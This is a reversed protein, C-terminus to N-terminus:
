IREPWKTHGWKLRVLREIANDIFQTPALNEDLEVGTGIDPIRPYTIVEGIRKLTLKREFASQYESELASWISRANELCVMSYRYIEDVNGGAIFEPTTYPMILNVAANVTDGAEGNRAISDGGVFPYCDRENLWLKLTPLFYACEAKRNRVTMSDRANGTMVGVVIEKVDVKHKKLIPDIISMRYGKHLLDDILIVPRDFSRITRAQNDLASYHRSEGITFGKLDRDFYKETHLSKTVTNPVLVDALAKGFPVSMYPGRIGSKDNVAPVGNIEAVKNIIKNHVASTNFSLVLQGPYIDTIVRLLNGHAEDIAKLVETNKNLPNKIVTEVDRFIVVPSKMDVAYVPRAGRAAAINVFGQKKLAEITRPNLGEDDVPNYVVYAFDRSILETLIETLVIQSVNSISRTKGSHIFGISAIGGSAAERVHAAIKPDGFEALLQNTELRHAAAIAVKRRHRGASEIFLTRVTEKDLYSTLRDMDYGAAKIEGTMTGLCEGSRHEYASIGIEKAQLVHKYAPERLYLNRAYIYNQAVPDILNSIDRNLDINERIRTSSIDEYYKKLTLTVVKGTIPYSHRNRLGHESSDKSERAFVIHNLGHISDKDPTNRYCSANKVVDSGVAIYLDRGAFAMKLRRVDRNNAINVSLDDPFPYIGEEDAVSMNMITRRQLRPQTHKSWSFEDLAIYVDFGMDRIARAVAKHGLSFPDFTGPYFAVKKHPPFEFRGVEAQHQCIYRYIHNLVAANNYFELIDESKEFLLAMLKKCSHYFIDDKKDLEMVTSGYIRQAIVWFAEKSLQPDYYAYGKIIMYLLRNKRQDYQDTAEMFRGRYDAYNEVMVGVTDIASAAAKSNSTEIIRQLMDISEDLEKPPLRLMIIGLYDPIYKSYQYDGIELGNFLEVTLENRQELPMRDVISLLGSGAAKRVIVTESVKVLNALHTGVHLINSKDGTVRINHIMIEINAVKVVWPTGAKLDDLFMNGLREAFKAPESPVDMVDMLDHIYQEESYDEFLSRYGHVAAVRLRLSDAAAARDIFGRMVELFGATCYEKRIEMVAKLLIICNIEDYDSRRYYESLIDMYEERCSDRCSDLVAMVFSNLSNEIWKKHQETLKHDPEIIMALYQRFLTVNTIAKDPLSVGEPLEKKYEENFTGVIRGLLIASQTRIDGEKHALLEYLFKATMLKQKETMYTSYENLIGIYTRVNKWNRESRAAEILNGFESEVHFKSMLRINHDIAAFKMQNVLDDDELLVVERKRPKATEVPEESLDDPLVVTVGREKMYEEFDALKDYVKQYRQRKAEDVNDLKNLIVSFADALTYFYVQELGDSNRSSKVRFDAYILILSEASLNELELDWTSHNAAIHGITPLGFREYCLDTYYYHLYPIRREESKRCGYKGIDHGAAAGSVLGLDLPVGARSLQRAVYMAVYHVGGIHGLTNFPTIDVGIRMFEYIYRSKVMRHLKIYERTYNGEDIESDSIFHMQRTPDFPLYEEEYEYVGRLIQMMFLRGEKYEEADAPEDKDPFLQHLVYGYCHKLWGEEPRNSLCEFHAEATEAVCAASFRGDRGEAAMIGAAMSELGSENLRAEMQKKTYGTEKLFSRDLLAKKIMSLILDEKKM